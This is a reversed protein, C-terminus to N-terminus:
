LSLWYNVKVLLTNQAPDDFLRDLEKLGRFTPDSVWNGRDHNWVLFLTSGPMYEWRLVLNTRLSRTSFDPNSFGFPEAPGDGDPDATYSNSEEDYSITSGGDVGYRLHNFTGPEALEKFGFYDGSAIYPQAWLQLSLNPTVAMDLRLTLDLSTQELESFVYRGGFTATALSDQGQTVYFGMAHSKEFGPSLVINLSGTPRIRIDVGSGIGWGSYENGAYYTFL